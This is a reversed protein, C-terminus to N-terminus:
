FFIEGTQIATQQLVASTTDGDACVIPSKFYFGFNLLVTLLIVKKM